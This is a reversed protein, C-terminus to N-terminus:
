NFGRVPFATAETSNVSFNSVPLRCPRFGRPRATDPNSDHTPRYARTSGWLPAVNRFVRRSTLTSWAQDPM